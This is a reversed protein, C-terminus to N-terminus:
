TINVNDIILVVFMHCVKLVCCFLSLPIRSGFQPTKSIKGFMIFIPVTITASVSLSVLQTVM